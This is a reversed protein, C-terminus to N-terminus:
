IIGYWGPTEMEATEETFIKLLYGKSKLRSEAIFEFQFDSATKKEKKGKTEIGFVNKGKDEFYNAQSGVIYMYIM